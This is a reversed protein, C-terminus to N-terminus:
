PLTLVSLPFSVVFFISSHRSDSALIKPTFFLEFTINVEPAVLDIFSM